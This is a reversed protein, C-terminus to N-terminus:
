VNEQNNLSQKLLYEKYWEPFGRMSHRLTEQGFERWLFNKINEKEEETIDQQIAKILKGIDRPSNELEGSEKLHQISKLWRAETRFGEKFLEWKGKGTNEKSWSDKHTEKFKESVYKGAMLPIPQGGLLFPQNYNKVVFGEIKTGGLVSETDLLKHIETIDKVEGRYLLPVTEITYSYNVLNIYDSIFKNEKFYEIGFLILHNLPVRNYKLTNHKPNDLYECYYVVNNPLKDEISLIYDVGKKFMKQPNEKYIIAGKSRIHLEGDIKGFVMQSGDIKETIEVEGKFIDSIYDQGLTFIKPFAMIM